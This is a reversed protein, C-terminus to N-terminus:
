GEVRATLAESDAAKESAPSSFSERELKVITARLWDSVIGHAEEETGTRYLFDLTQGSEDLPIQRCPFREQRSGKPVFEILACQGCEHRKGPNKYNLCTSSDQFIFQPRWATERPSRYSGNEIFALEGKLVALLNKNGLAM